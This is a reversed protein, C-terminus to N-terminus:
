LPAFDKEVGSLSIFIFLSIEKSLFFAPDKKEKGTKYLKIPRILRIEHINRVIQFSLQGVCILLIRFCFLSPSYHKVM